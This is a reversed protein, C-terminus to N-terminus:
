KYLLAKCFFSPDSQKEPQLSFRLQFHASDRSLQATKMPKPLSLSNSKSGAWFLQPKEGCPYIAATLELLLCKDKRKTKLTIRM